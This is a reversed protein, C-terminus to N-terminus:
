PHSYAPVPIRFLTLFLEPFGKVKSPRCAATQSVAVCIPARKAELFGCNTICTGAAAHMAGPGVRRRTSRKSDAGGGGPSLQGARAFAARSATPTEGEPLPVSVFHRHPARLPMPPSARSRGCKGGSDTRRWRAKGSWSDTSTVGCAERRGTATVQTSAKRVHVACRLMYDHAIHKM